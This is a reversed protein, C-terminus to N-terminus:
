KSNTDKTKFPYLRKIPYLTKLVQGKLNQLRAGKTSNLEVIIYPGSRPMEELKGGKREERRSNVLLVSQGVHFDSGTLHKMNYQLKQEEQAKRINELVADHVKVRLADTFRLVEWFSEEDFLEDDVYEEPIEKPDDTDEEMNETLEKLDTPLLPHRQYLLYFPSFKTSRQIVARYAFLVGPLALPWASTDEQITKLLANKLSQNVREVMGNAQPHYPRTVRHRVGTLKLLETMLENNFERGQDSIITEICGHRCILDEYLFRGVEAATKDPLAKAEVWKSFYDVAVVVYKMGHAPPLQCLDIGIQAMVRKPVGVPQLVDRVKLVAPNVKQCVLCLTCYQEIEIYMDPWFYRASLLGYLRDRGRHGAMAIAEKSGEIGEHNEKILKKRKSTSFVVRKKQILSKESDVVNDKESDVGKNKEGVHGVYFLTNGEVTFPKCQRRFNSKANKTSAYVPYGM